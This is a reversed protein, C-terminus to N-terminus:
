SFCCLHKGRVSNRIGNETVIKNEKGATRYTKIKQQQQQESGANGNESEKANQTSKETSHQEIHQRQHANTKTNAHYINAFAFQM